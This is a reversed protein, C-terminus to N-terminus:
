IVEEIQEEPWEEEAPGVHPAKADSGVFSVLRAVHRKDMIAKCCDFTYIIM